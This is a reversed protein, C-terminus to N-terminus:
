DTLSINDKRGPVSVIIAKMKMIEVTMIAMVSGPTDYVAIHTIETFM